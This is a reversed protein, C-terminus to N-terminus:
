VFTHKVDKLLGFFAFLGPGSPMPPRIRLFQTRCHASIKQKRDRWVQLDGLKPFM